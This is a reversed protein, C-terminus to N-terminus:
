GQYKALYNSLDKILQNTRLKRGESNLHFATNYFYKEDFIYDTFNSIIPAELKQALNSQFTEYLEPDPTYENEAIPYAAILMTAGREKLYTNLENLRECVDDSISPVLIDGDQFEYELGQDAFEIDGYENFASRAYVTSDDDLNASGGAAWLELCDKLYVPFARMMPIYDEPRLIRWLKFHDEITIWALDRNEITGVDWYQGHCIIYIDGETVNLKAMSEHFVNGLGGHLGMNVVPMGFAEEILESDIGFALNSHGILVIKPGDISELRDVKDILSAQYGGLHQPSIRLWFFVIMGFLFLLKLIFICNGKFNSTSLSHRSM